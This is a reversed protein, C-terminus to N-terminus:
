HVITQDKRKENTQNKIKGAIVYDMLLSYMFWLLKFNNDAVVPGVHILTVCDFTIVPYKFYKIM